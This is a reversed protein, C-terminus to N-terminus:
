RGQTLGAWGQLQRLTAPLLEVLDDAILGPGFGSAAEGHLWAAACAADFATMGQAMLGVAFGALVDGAGATALTAPANSNIAVHGDPAAIVTDYGKLLVVAGMRRAAARARALKDGAHDRALDPFLRAFEGDHPTLVVQAGTARGIARALHAPEDAFSSLADADLVCSKGAALTEIVRLRTEVGVGAGPGVLFANRRRDELLEAFDRRDDDPAMILSASAAAYIPLTPTAAAVTVLGAGIRQAARAALRGAGTMVGGSVVAHGRRYKHDQATPWPYRDLWLAPANERARPAIEELARDPIGIAAVSVAGCLDRGPLLLHAPKKRFFTVTAVCRPATDGLVQGTDGAVGSPLDVAVTALRRANIARITERAVGDLPRSLGAGFLADVAVAAGDLVDPTLTEVLGAWRAAHIAADGTLADRGGLLALRVRWGQEALVRAAVFGDGGNNGPGCLVVAPRATFRRRLEDAVARGAAEILREGPTGAAIALADARGMEAVTLIEPAAPSSDDRASVM